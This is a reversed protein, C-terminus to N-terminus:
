AAPKPQQDTEQAYRWGGRQLKCNTSVTSPRVNNAFAAASTSPHLRGAPDIVPKAQAAFPQSILSAPM